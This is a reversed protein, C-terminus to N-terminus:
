WPEPTTEKTRDTAYTGASGTRDEGSDLRRFPAAYVPKDSSIRRTAPRDMTSPESM